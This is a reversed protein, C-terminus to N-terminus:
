ESRSKRLTELESAVRAVVPKWNEKETQRFLRMNPYWPTQEGELGWRWDPSFPLLTWVAKGLAGALHAVSTDVSVIVDMQRVFCATEYYDTLREELNLVNGLSDLFERDCEPVPTQLAYFTIHPLQFLESLDKLKMSRLSDLLHKVNGAWTIGVKLDRGAPLENEQPARLYPTEAPIVPCSRELVAPLSMMLLHYDFPGPATETSIVEDALQSTAFLKVQPPRCELIIKGAGSQARAKGVYRAFQIGDGLGQEARLLLTKGEIREGRWKPEKYRADKLALKRFESGRWGEAWRGQLLHIQSRNVLAPICYPRLQLARDYTEVARTLDNTRRFCNGLNIISPIHRPDIELAAKFCNGAEEYRNLRYYTNGLEFCGLRNKPKSRIFRKLSEIAGDDDRLKECAVALARFAEPIPPHLTGAKQLWPRAQSWQRQRAYSMGMLLHADASAPAEQLIESAIQRVATFDHRQYAHQALKWAQQWAAPTETQM